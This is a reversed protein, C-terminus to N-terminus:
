ISAITNWIGAQNHHCSNFVDHPTSGKKAYNQQPSPGIKQIISTDTTIFFKLCQGMKSPPVTSWRSGTTWRRRSRERRSEDDWDDVKVDAAYKKKKPNQKNYSHRKSMSNFSIPTTKITLLSWTIGWRSRWWWRTGGSGTRTTPPLALVCPTLKSKEQCFHHDLLCTDNDHVIKTCQDQWVYWQWSISTKHVCSWVICVYDLNWVDGNLNGCTM